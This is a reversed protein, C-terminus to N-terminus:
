KITKVDVWKLAIEGLSNKTVHNKLDKSYAKIFFKDDPLPSSKIKQLTVWNSSVAKDNKILQELKASIVYEGETKELKLTISKIHEKFFDSHQKPNRSIYSVLKKQFSSTSKRTGKIGKLLINGDSNINLQALIVQSEAENSIGLEFVERMSQPLVSFKTTFVWNSESGPAKLRLINKAKKPKNTTIVFTANGKEVKLLNSDPNLVQWQKSLSKDVFDDRFFVEYTKADIKEKISELSRNMDEVNNVSYFQGENVDAISSLKAIEDDKLDIGLVYVTIGQEKFQNVVEDLEGGCTDKGDSFLVITKDGQVASLAEGGQQLADVLPASGRDSEFLQLKNIIDDTDLPRLPSVIEIASCDRDGHHGYAEIGVNLDQPLTELMSEFAETATELKSLDKLKTHEPFKGSMRESVDFIFLLNSSAWVQSTSVYGMLMMVLIIVNTQLGKKM